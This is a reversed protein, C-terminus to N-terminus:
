LKFIGKIESVFICVIVIRISHCFFMITIYLIMFFKEGQNSEFVRDKTGNAFAIVVVGRWRPALACQWNIDEFMM